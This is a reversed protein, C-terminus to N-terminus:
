PYIFSLFFFNSGLYITTQVTIFGLYQKKKISYKDLFNIRFKENMQVFYKIIYIFIFCVFIFVFHM